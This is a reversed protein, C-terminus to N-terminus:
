KQGLAQREFEEDSLSPVSNLAHLEELFEETPEQGDILINSISQKDSQNESIVEDKMNESLEESILGSLIPTPEDKSILVLSVLLLLAGLALSVIVVTFYGGLEFILNLLKCVLQRSGVCETPFAVEGRYIQFVSYFTFISLSLLFLGIFRKTSSTM